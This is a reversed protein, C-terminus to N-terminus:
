KPKFTLRQGRRLKKDPAIKGYAAKAERVTCGTKRRCDDLRADRKKVPTVEFDERMWADADLNAKPWLKLIEKREFTVNQFRAINKPAAPPVFITEGNMDVALAVHLQFLESSIIEPTLQNRDGRFGRARVVGSAIADRLQWRVVDISRNAAKICIEGKLACQLKSPDGFMGYSFAELASLTEM